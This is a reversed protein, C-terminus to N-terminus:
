PMTRVEDTENIDKAHKWGEKTMIPHNGTCRLKRGDNLAIEYLNTPKSKYFRRIKKWEWRHLGKNYSRVPCGIKLTSIAKPGDITEVITRATCCIILQGGMGMLRQGTGEASLVAISSGNLFSIESQNLKKGVAQVESSTMVTNELISAHDMIHGFIYGMIIQAQKYTPAIIKANLGPILNTAILASLAICYSKGARTTSTIIVRKHERNIITSAIKVQYSALEMPQGNNDKFLVKFLARIEDSSLTTM